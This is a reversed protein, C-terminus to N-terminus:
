RGSTYFCTVLGIGVKLRIPSVSSIEGRTLLMLHQRVLPSNGFDVTVRTPM